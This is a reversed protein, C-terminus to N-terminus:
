YGETLELKKAILCMLELSNSHQKILQPLESMPYPHNFKDKGVEITLGLRKYKLTFYDKLGGASGHSEKLAYGLKKAILTAEKKYRTDSKYGWYIEEGKSHYSVIMTYNNKELLNVIIQTEIESHPYEGIYDSGHKYRKNSIGEGWDADYNVNLDVCRANAKWLSFNPSKNIALLDKALKPRNKISTVGNRCLFVGDPNLMPIFDIPYAGKYDKALNAVLYSTIYERAHISAVILIKGNNVCNDGKKVMLIPNNLLTKGLSEIEGDMMKVNSYLETLNKM